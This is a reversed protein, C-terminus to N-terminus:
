QEEDLDFYNIIAEKLKDDEIYFGDSVDMYRKLNEIIQLFRWDPVKQWGKQLLEIIENIRNVDRM